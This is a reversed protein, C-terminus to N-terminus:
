ESAEVPEALKYQKAVVEAFIKVAGDEFGSALKAVYALVEERGAEKSDERSCSVCVYGYETRWPCWKNPKQCSACTTPQINTLAKAARECERAEEADAKSAAARDEAEDIKQQYKVRSAGLEKAFAQSAEMLAVHLRRVERILRLTYSVPLFTRAGKAIADAKREIHALEIEDLNSSSEAVQKSNLTM